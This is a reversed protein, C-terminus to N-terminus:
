CHNPSKLYKEKQANRRRSVMSSKIPTRTKPKVRPKAPPKKDSSGVGISFKGTPLQFRSDKNPSFFPLVPPTAPAQQQQSFVNQGDIANQELTERDPTSCIVNASLNAGGRNTDKVPTAAKLMIFAMSQKM